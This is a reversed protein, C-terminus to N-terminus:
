PDEKASNFSPEESPLADSAVVPAKPQRKYRVRREQLPMWEKIPVIPTQEFIRLGRPGERRVFRMAAPDNSAPAGIKISLPRGFFMRKSAGLDALITDLMALDRSAEPAATVEVYVWIQGDLQGLAAAARGGRAVGDLGSAVRRAGSSPSSDSLKFTGESFWLNSSKPAQENPEFSLVIPSNRDNAPALQLWTTDWAILAVRTNRRSPDPRYRTAAIAPPWGQQPLDQTQWVGENPEEPDIRAQLPPLPLLRRETLYFFDRSETRVYRPFRMLNMYRIMRRGMFEWEPADPVMGKAEWQTDLKRGLDPLTGRKAIRYFEFGTHGPNM